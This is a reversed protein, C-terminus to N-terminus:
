FQLEIEQEEYCMGANVASPAYHKTLLHLVESLKTSDERYVFIKPNEPFNVRTYRVLKVGKRNKYDEANTNVLPIGKLIPFDKFVPPEKHFIMQDGNM